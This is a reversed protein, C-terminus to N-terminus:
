PKWTKWKKFILIGFITFFVVPIGMSLILGVSTNWFPEWVTPLATLENTLMFSPIPDNVPDQYQMQMTAAMGYAAMGFAIGQGLSLIGGFGWVLSVSLALIGFVGYRAYQNLTFPDDGMWVPVLALEGFFIAYVAWQARKDHYLNAKQM